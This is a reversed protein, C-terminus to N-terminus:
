HRLVGRTLMFATLVVGLAFADGVIKWFIYMDFRAEVERLLADDAFVV